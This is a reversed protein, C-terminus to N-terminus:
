QQWYGEDDRIKKCGACIPLFGRLTKVESLAHQLELILHEKKEELKKRHKIEQQALSLEMSIEDVESLIALVPRHEILIGKHKNQWRLYLYLFPCAFVSVILRSLLTGKMIDTYHPDGMFAGTSSSYLFFCRDHCGEVTGAKTTSNKQTYKSLIGEARANEWFRSWGAHLM